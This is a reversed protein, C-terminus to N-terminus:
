PTVLTIPVLKTLLVGNSADSLQIQLSAPGATLAGTGQGNNSAVITQTITCTGSPLTGTGSGCDIPAPGANAARNSSGQILRLSVSVNALSPGPNSFIANFSDSSGAGDITLPNLTSVGIVTPPALLTIPVGTSDIAYVHGIVDTVRAVLSLTAAGGALGGDNPVAYSGTFTCTGTPLSGAGGTCAVPVTSVTRQISGQRITGVVAVSTLTNGANTLTVSYNQTAGGILIPSPNASASAFHADVLTVFSTRTAALAGNYFLQVQLTAGGAVLTGSGPSANTVSPLTSALCTSQPLVYGATTGCSPTVSGASRQASGQIVSIQYSYAGFSQTGPNNLYMGLSGPVGSLSLATPVVMSFTAPILTVLATRQATLSGATLDLEFTASGPVFLGAGSTFDSASFTFSMTCTGNPLVGSGAHCDVVVGGAARRTSGQVMWGQLTAGSVAAGINTLPAFYVRLEGDIPVMYNPITLPAISLQPPPPPPPSGGGGGGGGCGDGCVIFRSPATPAPLTTDTHDSCAGITVAAIVLLARSVRPSSLHM